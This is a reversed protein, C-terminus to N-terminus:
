DWALASRAPESRAVRGPVNRRQARVRYTGSPLVVPAHDGDGAELTTGHVVEAPAALKIHGIYLEPAPMDRALADDRFMVAGGYIAHRHGTTEGRALVTAGDLDPEVLAGSVPADDVREICVDGQFYFRSMTPEKQQSHHHPPEDDTIM